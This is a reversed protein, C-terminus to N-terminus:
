FNSDGPQFENFIIDSIERLDKSWEECDCEGDSDCYQGDEIRQAKGLAIHGIAVWQPRTMPTYTKIHFPDFSLSQIEEWQSSTFQLYHLPQNNM